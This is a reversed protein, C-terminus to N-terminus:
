FERCAFLRGVSLIHNNLFYLNVIDPNFVTPKVLQINRQLHSLEEKRNCFASGATVGLPFYDIM